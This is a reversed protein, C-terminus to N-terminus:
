KKSDESTQKDKDSESPPPTKSPLTSRLPIREAFKYHTDGKKGDQKNSRFSKDTNGLNM